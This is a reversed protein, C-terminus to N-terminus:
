CHDCLVKAKGVLQSAIDRGSSGNGVILVHLGTYDDPNRYYVSHLLKRGHGHAKWIEQGPWSVLRPFHNNGTAVILHDYKKQIQLGAANTFVLNWHGVKENGGWSASELVHSFHIHPYLGYHKSYRRHYAAIHPHPPYLPTGKPFPFGPYTMHPVPTNTRLLPYLATEPIEPPQTAHSEPLRTSYPTDTHIDM